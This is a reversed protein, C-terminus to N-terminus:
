KGATVGIIEQGGLVKTTLPKWCSESFWKELKEMIIM